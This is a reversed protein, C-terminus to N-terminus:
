AGGVWSRPFRRGLRTLLEYDITSMAEAQDAIPLNPGMFEVEDGVHAGLGTVDLVTLDMSVRGLVPRRAGRVVGYGKNSAARLFGDAYGIGVTALTHRAQATFTAGYGITEGPGIERIQLIPATLTVVPLPAPGEAPTPGGGYLGIGPRVEDLAYAPGLYVGATAAFSRPANPWFTAARNFAELQSPNKPHAGPEDACALHSVLTSPAPWATAAARWDTEALGLRNMGTDVHISAPAAGAFIWLGIQEPTNLVPELSADRFVPLADASPGHFVAISPEPGLVSRIEAGEKAWAVYFRRCGAKALAKVVPEAGLGYADAKVVAAAKAPAARRSLM